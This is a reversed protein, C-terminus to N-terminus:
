DSTLGIYNGSLRSAQVLFIDQFFLVNQDSLLMLVVSGGWFSRHIFNFEFRATHLVAFSLQNRASIVCGPQFLMITLDLSERM